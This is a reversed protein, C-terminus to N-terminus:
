KALVRKLETESEIPSVESSEPDDETQVLGDLYVDVLLDAVKPATKKGVGHINRLSAELKDRDEDCRNRYYEAVSEPFSQGEDFEVNKSVGERIRRVRYRGVNDVNQVIPLENQRVGKGIRKSYNEIWDPRQAETTGDFLHKMSEIYESLKRATSRMYKIDYGTRTEIDDKPINSCWYYRLLVATDIADGIGDLESEEVLKTFERSPDGSYSVTRGFKESAASTLELRSPDPNEEVWDFMDVIQRLNAGAFNERDFDVAADGRATTEFEDRAKDYKALEHDELWDATDALKERLVDEKHNVKERRWPDGPELQKWFLTSIVFSEIEDHTNWGAEILELLLWRFQPETSVHSDMRELERPEFFRDEVEDPNKSFTFAYGEDFGYGPRAARGIMQQYEYVHIYDRRKADAVVVSQVPGDFGYALTTTCFIAKL